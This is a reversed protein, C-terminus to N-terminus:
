EEEGDSQCRNENSDAAAGGRVRPLLPTKAISSEGSCSTEPFSHLLRFCEFFQSQVTIKVSRHSGAPQCFLNSPTGCQCLKQYFFNYVLITVSHDIWIFHKLSQLLFHFQSHFIFFGMDKKSM